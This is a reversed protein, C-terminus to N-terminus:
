EVFVVVEVREGKAAGDSEPPLAICADAHCAAMLDASGHTPTPWVRWRGNEAWELRAPSYARRGPRKKLDAQLEAHVSRFAPRPDGMMARITPLVFLRFIVLTSVPNGPLGFVFGGAHVGVTTPKGPKIAVRDFLIEVGERLLVDRVYDFDGV